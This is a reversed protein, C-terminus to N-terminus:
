QQKQAALQRRIDVLMRQTAQHTPRLQAARELASLAGQWHQGRAAVIGRLFWSRHRKGFRQTLAATTRQAGTLDGSDMQTLAANELAPYYAGRSAKFAAAYAAVAPRPRKSDRHCNGLNYNVAVPDGGPAGEAVRDRAMILLRCAPDRQGARKNANSLNILFRPKAPASLVARRYLSVEDRWIELNAPHLWTLMLLWGVAFGWGVKRQLSMPQDSDADTGTGFLAAAWLALLVMPAYIYRDQVLDGPNFAGGASVAALLAWFGCCLFLRIPRNRSLWVMVAGVVSLGVLPLLPEPLPDTYAVSLHQPF